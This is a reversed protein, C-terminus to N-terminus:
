KIRALDGRLQSELTEAHQVAKLDGSDRAWAKLAALGSEFLRGHADLKANTTDCLDATALGTTSLAQLTVIQQNVLKESLDYQKQLYLILATILVSVLGWVPGHEMFSAPDATVDALIM